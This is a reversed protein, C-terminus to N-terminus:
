EFTKNVCSSVFKSKYCAHPQEFLLPALRDTLEQLKLQNVSLAITDVKSCDSYILGTCFDNYTTQTQTLHVSDVEPINQLIAEKTAHRVRQKIYQKKRKESTNRFQLLINLEIQIKTKVQEYFSSANWSSVENLITYIYESNTRNITRLKHCSQAEGDSEISQLNRRSNNSNDPLPPAQSLAESQTNIYPSDSCAVVSNDCSQPCVSKLAIEASEKTVLFPRENECRM